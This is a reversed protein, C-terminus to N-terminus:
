WQFLKLCCAAMLNMKKTKESHPFLLILYSNLGSLAKPYIVVKLAKYHIALQLAKPHIAVQLAKLHIAV